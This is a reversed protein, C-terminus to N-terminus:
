ISERRRPFSLLVLMPFVVVANFIRKIRLPNKALRWLWELGGRSILSPALSQQGVFFDLSGGVAMVLNVKLKKINKSIFKEQKPAGLAVFLMHPKIKNIEDQANLSSNGYFSANSYIESAKEIAQKNVKESAGLFFVKYRNENAIKLLDLMFERGRIRKLDKGFLFRFAISIGVGDPINIDSSNLVERYKTDRSAKVLIEPNPTFISIKKNNKLSFDIEKLLDSRPIITINVNLIQKHKPAKTTTQKKM